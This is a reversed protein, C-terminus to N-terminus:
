QQHPPQVPQKISERIIMILAYAGGGLFLLLGLILVFLGTLFGSFSGRNETIVLGMGRDPTASVLEYKGPILRTSVLAAKSNGNVTETQGISTEIPVTTGDTARRISLTLGAPLQEDDVRFEENYVGAIKRWVTYTGPKDVTFVATGPAETELVDPKTFAKVVSTVPVLILIIGLVPPIALKLTTSLKM